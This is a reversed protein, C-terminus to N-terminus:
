FESGIPTDYRKWFSHQTTYPEQGITDKWTDTVLIEVGFPSSDFNDALGLDEALMKTDNLLPVSPGELTLIYHSVAGFLEEQEAKLNRNHAIHQLGWLLVQHKTFTTKM